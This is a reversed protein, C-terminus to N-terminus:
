TRNLADQAAEASIRSIEARSIGLDHLDRDELGSLERYTRNYNKRWLYGARIRAAATELFNAITLTVAKHEDHARNITTM